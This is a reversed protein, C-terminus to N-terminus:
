DSKYRITYPQTTESNIVDTVFIFFMLIAIDFVSYSTNSYELLFM